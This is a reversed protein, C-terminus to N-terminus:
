VTVETGTIVLEYHIVLVCTVREALPGMRAITEHAPEMRFRPWTSPKWWSTKRAPFNGVLAVTNHQEDLFRVYTRVTMGDSGYEAPRLELLKEDWRRVTVSSVQQPSQYQASFPCERFFAEIKSRTAFSNPSNVYNEQSM